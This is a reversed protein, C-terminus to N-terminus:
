KSAGRDVEHLVLAVVAGAILIAPILWLVGLDAGRQTIPALLTM